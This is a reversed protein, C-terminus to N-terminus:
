GRTEIVSHVDLGIWELDEARLLERAQHLAGGQAFTYGVLAAPHADTAIYAHPLTVVLVVIVLTTLLVVGGASRACHSWSGLVRVGSSETSPREAIGALLTRRVITVRV